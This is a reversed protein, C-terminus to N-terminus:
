NWYGNERLCAVGSIGPEFPREAIVWVNGKDDAQPHDPLYLREPVGGCRDAHRKAAKYSRYGLYQMKQDKEYIITFGSVTVIGVIQM